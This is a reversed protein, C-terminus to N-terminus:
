AAPLKFREPVCGYTLLLDLREQHFELIMKEADEYSVANIIPLYETRLCEDLENTTVFIKLYVDAHYYFKTPAFM